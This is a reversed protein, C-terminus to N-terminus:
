RFKYVDLLVCSDKLWNAIKELIAFDSKYTDDFGPTDILVIRYDQLLPHGEITEIYGFDLEITCSALSRGVVM